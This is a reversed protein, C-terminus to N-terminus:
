VPAVEKDDLQENSINQAPYARSGLPPRRHSTNLGHQLEDLLRDSFNLKRM